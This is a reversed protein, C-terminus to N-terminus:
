EGLQNDIFDLIEQLSASRLREAVADAEAGEDDKPAPAAPLDTARPLPSSPIEASGEAEARGNQSPSGVPAPHNPLLLARLHQALAEPTPHDFVLTAPLRLGTAGNLRNRLQLARLSDFGIDVFARRLAVTRPDDYGLVAAVHARVLSLVLADQEGESARALRASFSEGGSDQGSDVTARRAPSRVLGRLLPPVDQADGDRLVSTDLRLPLVVPEDSACALDFLALGEDNSLPQIGSRGIRRVDVEGLGGTLGSRVGWLGWVLSLGSLGVGRRWGVLGDVFGNGAAYGGQGGSGLVGAVSSFVVFGVGLGVTLEHLWWAGDVKPRLVSSVREGSLSGVVGDDLVGAVHVVCSLPFEAPISGVVSALAERDAVDAAVVRIDAGLGSMERLFEGVGDGSLGSRSVLVLRRVGHAVVLHRVVLRGLVGTGGSVLVTGDPRWLPNPHTTAPTTVRALRPTLVTGDRLAFQTEGSDVTSPLASWSADHDDVDVLTVRGPNETQASRVLGWVASLVPDPLAGPAAAIAGRTVVVLRTNALREDALWGQVAALVRHITEHVAPVMETEEAGSLEPLVVVDPADAGADLSERLAPLDTHHELVVGRATLANAPEPVEPGIWAWREVVGPERPALAPRPRWELRFLAARTSAAARRLSEAAVPRMGLTAVTVVPRGTPDTAAVSLSGPGTFRIRVRLRAAGAAHLEVGNWSFPLRTVSGDSSADPFGVFAAAHLAADFLAPHLGYSGAGGASDPLDVEAHIEDGLRWCRRLGRFAEGYHLGSKALQRYCDDLAIEEAGAPPWQKPRPDPQHGGLAVTGTAHQTWPEDIPADDARSHLSLARRGDGDPEDLRLQVRVAGQEPLVLPAELVLEELLDCGVQAGAHLALEVLATGPVLVVDAVAHDALWPHSRLSLTGTFVAGGTADALPVWAGLMPHDATDMGAATVDAGAPAADELWYRRRQFAYTPLDVVRPDTHAFAESWDVTVGHVHAEAVATLFRAMGGENRRLSEVTLVDPVDVEDATEQVGVTLVPHPSMEVFTPHGDAILRRVTRDFQVTRRLNRVWYASDLTTTDIPEGVVTSYFPVTAPRPQIGTLAGLLTEHIEDIQPSHSAYDVPIRRARVGNATFSALADDLAAAEGSVVVSRPGNVAAVSIAGNWPELAHLVQDLPAAVSVMGGRGSLARLARSRVAVVRAADDLSLAGAVHAAAIEGQSHGVVASPEVGFSRWLAALSVMVAFLAPQVVDVRDLMPAGAEGRLVKTLSWDTHPRLSDACAHISERFVRSSTMLEAAMGPWQSGQGPFVFVLRDRTGAVGRAVRQGHDGRALDALRAVAEERSEAVVVARDAWATRTTMLSYAVDEDRTDSERELFERLRQAQARLAAEGRGSVLWPLPRSGLDNEVTSENTTRLPREPEPPAQELIVHANTGGVGFSSVAARRPRGAEPWPRAESLLEVAGSSWDVYPTPEAIHLSRPLTGHRMAMVMKIVGAVGAAAQTHGINSKLSGLWLPREDPRDQGYTALLAQAEIPDGLRTGAGHAEVCDVDATTLGANALADRIVRQQAPGNPATLGNSAGDQNVASGRLVALVRRGNRLADSLRELVLVGVGESWSSGGADSSFSRCRGDPALGRQRSFEIYGWPTAMVTVGGALALSCEGKRLSQAALHLAVLSSSCATDVTVAPGEFGFTYALRGTAVSPMSGVVRYGEASPPVHRIRAGYESYMLGAFVGTRTGRLTTPDIRAGEIAEWTTELLLRHQPDITVAEGPSIAFFDADFDAADYLFGAHRTCVAGVRDPDPDYEVTWGRDDPFESIADTESRVLRWLDEPSAVGGPLRCGMGIIAIPEDPTGQGSSPAPATDDHRGLLALGLHEALARPTPYDFIVTAPLDVGTEDRLRERFARAARGRLGQAGFARDPDLVVPEDRGLVASAHAHVLELLLRDREAERAEALRRRLSRGGGENLEM